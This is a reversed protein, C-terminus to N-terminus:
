TTGFKVPIMTGPQGIIEGPLLTTPLELYHEFQGGASLHPLGASRAERIMYKVRKAELSAQQVSKNQDVAMKLLEPLSFSVTDVAQGLAVMGSLFVCSLICLFIRSTM